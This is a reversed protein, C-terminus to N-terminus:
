LYQSAVSMLQAWKHMNIKWLCLIKSVETVPVVFFEELGTKRLKLGESSDFMWPVM